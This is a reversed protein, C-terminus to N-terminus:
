LESAPPRLAPAPAAKATQDPKELICDIIRHLSTNASARFTTFSERVKEPLDRLNKIFSGLVTRQIGLSCGSLQNILVIHVGPYGIQVLNRGLEGAQEEPFRSLCSAILRCDNIIKTDDAGDGLNPGMDLATNMQQRCRSWLGRRISNLGANEDLIIQLERSPNRRLLLYIQTALPFNSQNLYDPIEPFTLLDSRGALIVQAGVVNGHALNRGIISRAPPCYNSLNSALAAFSQLTVPDTNPVPLSLAYGLNIQISNSANRLQSAAALRTASTIPRKVLRLLLEDQEDDPVHSLKGIMTLCAAEDGARTILDAARARLDFDYAEIQQAMMRSVPIESSTTDKELELLLARQFTPPLKGLDEALNTKEAASSSNFVNTCFNKIENPNLCAFIASLFEPRRETHALSKLAEARSQGAFELNKPLMIAAILAQCGTETLYDAAADLQYLELLASLSLNQM